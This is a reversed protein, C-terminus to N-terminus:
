RRSTAASRARPRRLRRCIAAVLEAGASTTASSPSAARRARARTAPKGIDHLLAGFRLAGGRTLEDALPEALLERREGAATAPSASSTAGRGRAARRLVELTHGHVDLHHNPNQEVGRLAELEPLVRPRRTRARGAARARPDPGPRRAAGRAGRVPARGAPEGARAPRRARWRAGHEADLEFGSRPPSGRPACCGCRTTPSRRRGLRRAALAGRADALGGTPDLPEAAAGGLPVAIANVTFDRPALDAEIADAACRPHRRRALGPRARARALDRVRESLAFAHAAPPAPSRVRRRAGRGRRRRPRPRRVERGLSRTASRAASSGPTTRAASRTRPRPSPRRAACRRELEPADSVRSARAARPALDRLHGRLQDHRAPARGGRRPDAREGQAGILVAPTAPSSTRRPGSTSRSTTWRSRASSRIAGGASSCRPTTPSRRAARRRRLRDAARRGLHGGRRALAPRLRREGRARLAQRRRRLLALELAPELGSSARTARSRTSGTSRSGAASWTSTRRAPERLTAASNAAHLRSPGPARRAAARRARTFRTSSSASTLESDPEDATAFHTWLAPWSSRRPRRRVAGVLEISRTPTASASGAWAATTSSTSAAAARRPERRPAAVLRSSARAGSRSRPAPRSRTTSSARRHARGDGPDPAEPLRRACSRRGRGRGRGRAPDRRRRARRAACPSRATATATPRSSPASSPGATSSAPSARATASSRAPTSAPSPRSATEPARSVRWAPPFREVVDGAIVSEARRDARRRDARRPRPRPRRRLGGRVAGARPRAARRDDGLPRRRHGATALAPRRSRNVAVRERRRRRDHRRGQARRRRREGRRRAPAARAPARAVEASDLELLRGLEGEHPTLVTPRRARSALADLRGAHANLGDADLVCRRRSGRRRARAGARLDRRRPRHGPGLVVAAAREAAELSRTPPTAARASGERARRLRAVDGRDAEGRLDARARGPRRGDRLRRRRPDRREGRPLRRRHARALRRRRAGRGLHVQDLEARPAARLELVAADILGAARSAPRARRPDRDARRHLEGATRRARARGTASSPPTSPSPSTPGSPPARSRAPRPTSARPSTPPSSRRAARTSRRSRPTRPRARRARSAPASSRTSSRARARGAGGRSARRARARRRRLARPEGGRRGLAGRAPWLLLSRPRTARRRWGGPRSWGTAATTARAASSGSRARAPWGARAAEAVALGGGGDAGALAGGAGRDGLRRGRADHEADHLPTLWTRWRGCDLRSGPRRETQRRAVSVAAVALERSHSLSVELEVGAPGRAEAAAATLQSGRREGGGGSRSRACPRARRDRAGEGGGGEGRLPGRPPPGPAPALARLRARGRSFLARRAAPPARPRARAARDRDPRRRDGAPLPRSGSGSRGHVPVHRLGDDSRPRRRDPLPLRRLLARAEAYDRSRTPAAPACSQSVAPLDLFLLPTSRTASRTAPRPSPRRRRRTARLARAARAPTAGLSRWSGTASSAPRRRRGSGPIRDRVRRRGRRRPRGIPVRRSRASSRAPPDGRAADATRRPRRDRRGPGRGCTRRPPRGLRLRRRRRALRRRRRELDIGTRREVEERLSEHRGPHRQGCGTSRSSSRRRRPAPAGFAFAAGPRSSASSSATPRSRTATRSWRRHREIAASTATSTSRRASRPRAGGDGLLPRSSALTRAPRARGSSIAAEIASARTSSLATALRDDALRASRESFERHRRAVRGRRRRGGGQLPRPARARPRRRRRRDCGRGRHSLYDFGGYHADRRSGGTELRPSREVFGEAADIDTSRSCRRRLGARRGRGREFSSFFVAGREGLWPEIDEAYTFDDGAELDADLESSRAPRRSGRARSARRAVAEIAERRSARPGCRRGRRLAPADAPVLTAPGTPEARRRRVGALLAIAGLAIAAHRLAGSTPGRGRM